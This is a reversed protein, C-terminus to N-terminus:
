TTIKNLLLYLGEVIEGIIGARFKSASACKNGVKEFPTYIIEQGSTVTASSSCVGVRFLSKIEACL